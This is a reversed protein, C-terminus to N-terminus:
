SNQPQAELCCSSWSWGPQRHRALWAGHERFDPTVWRGLAVLGVSSAGAAKLAASASQAHAGTTWTDDIVLVHQTSVSESASYRDAAQERQGLDPRDVVLLDRYRTESGEVVQSILMPLPHSSRGSTSPVSTIVDFQTIGVRAAACREHRALWKWLVAALGVTKQERQRQTTRDDKYTFLERAMQESRPAMSVFAVVDAVNSGLVRTADQCPYCRQYAPDVVSHCTSCVDLGTPPVRVLFNEYPAAVQDVTQPRAAPRGSPLEM